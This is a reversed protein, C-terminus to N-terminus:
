GTQIQARYCAASRLRFEQWYKLVTTVTVVLSTSSTRSVVAPSQADDKRGTLPSTAGSHPPFRPAVSHADPEHEITSSKADNQSPIGGDTGQRLQVGPLFAFLSPSLKPRLSLGPPCNISSARASVALIIANGM